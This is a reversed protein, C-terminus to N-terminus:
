TPWASMPGLNHVESFGAAKLMSAAHSSRAGSRCYLIHPVSPDLEGLRQSLEQVPIHLAGPIHGQAFEGPTRVDLLVAGAEVKARAEAPDLWGTFAGLLRTLWSM